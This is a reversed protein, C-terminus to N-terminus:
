NRHVRGPSLKKQLFIRTEGPPYDDLRGFAVYGLRHYFEPAQYSFTNLWVSHCGRAVAEVEAAEMLARGYGRGRLHEAVSLASVYMWGLQTEALLGGVIADEERLLLNLPKPDWVYGLVRSHTDLPAILKSKQADTLTHTQEIRIM